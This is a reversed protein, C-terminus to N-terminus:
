IEMVEQNIIREYYYLANTLDIYRAHRKTELPTAVTPHLNYTNADFAIVKMEAKICEIAIRAAQKDNM